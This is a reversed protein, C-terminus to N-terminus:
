DDGFGKLATYVNSLIDSDKQLHISIDEMVKLLAKQKDEQHFTLLSAIAFDVKDFITRWTQLEEMRERSSGYGFHAAFVTPEIMYGCPRDKYLNWWIQEDGPPAWTAPLKLFDERRYLIYGISYRCCMPNPQIAMPNMKMISGSQYTLQDTNEWIWIQADVREIPHQSEKYIVPPKGFRSWFRDGFCSNIFYNAFCGNINVAPGIV